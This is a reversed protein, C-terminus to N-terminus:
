PRDGSSTSPSGYGEWDTFLGTIAGVSGLVVASAGSVIAVLRYQVADEGTPGLSEHSPAEGAVGAAHEQWKLAAYIGTVGGIAGAVLSSALLSGSVAPPLPPPSLIRKAREDVGAQQGPRLAVDGFTAGISQGVLPLLAEDDDSPVRAVFSGIVEQKAPDIRRLGFVTQSEIQTLSTVVVADAGLAEAVESFCQEETCGRTDGTTSEGDGVLARLESSDLVSVQERKRLEAVLLTGIVAAVRPEIGAREVDYVIVRLPGRRAAKLTELPGPPALAAKTSFTPAEEHLGPVLAITLESVEGYRVEVSGKWPAFGELGVFVAHEGPPLEIMASLPSFGRPVGDVVVSAGRQAVAVRLQGRWSEPRLVGVIASALATRREPSSAPVNVRVRGRERLGGVDASVLELIFGDGDIALAGNLVIAAGTLAGVRILCDVDGSDCALGLSKVAELTAMTTAAPQVTYESTPLLARLEREVAARAAAPALGELALVAIQAKTPSKKATAAAAASVSMLAMAVFFPLVRRLSM